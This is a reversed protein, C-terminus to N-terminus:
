AQADDRVPHHWMWHTTRNLVSFQMDIVAAGCEPCAFHFASNAGASGGSYTPSGFWEVVDEM